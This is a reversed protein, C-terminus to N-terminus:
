NYVRDKLFIMDEVMLGTARITCYISRRNELQKGITTTLCVALGNWVIFRSMPQLAQTLRSWCDTGLVRIIEKLTMIRLM